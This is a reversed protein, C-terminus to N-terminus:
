GKIRTFELGSAGGNWLLTLKEETLVAIDTAAELGDFYRREQKMYHEPGGMKTSWLNTINIQSPPLDKSTMYSAGYTNITGNGGVRSGDFSATIRTGPIVPDPTAKGNIFAKLEWQTDKLDM